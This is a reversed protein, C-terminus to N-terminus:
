PTIREATKAIRKAAIVAGVEAEAWAPHQGRFLGIGVRRGGAVRRQARPDALLM